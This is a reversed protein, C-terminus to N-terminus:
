VSFGGGYNIQQNREGGKGNRTATCTPSGGLQRRWATRVRRSLSQASLSGAPRGAAPSPACWPQANGSAPCWQPSPTIDKLCVGGFQLVDPCKHLRDLKSIRLDTQLVYYSRRVFFLIHSYSCLHVICLATSSPATPVHLYAAFLCLRSAINM